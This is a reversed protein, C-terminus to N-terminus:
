NGRWRQKTGILEVSFAEPLDGRLDPHARIAVAGGVSVEYAALEVAAPADLGDGLM